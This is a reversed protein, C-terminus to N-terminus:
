IIDETSDFSMRLVLMRTLLLQTKMVTTQKAMILSKSQSPHPRPKMKLSLHIQRNKRVARSHPAKPSRTKSQKLMPRYLIQEEM